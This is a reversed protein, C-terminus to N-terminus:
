RFGLTFGQTSMHISWGVRGADSNTAPLAPLPCRTDNGPAEGRAIFIDARRAEYFILMCKERHFYHPNIPLQTTVGNRQKCLCVRWRIRAAANETVIKKMVQYLIYRIEVPQNLSESKKGRNERV